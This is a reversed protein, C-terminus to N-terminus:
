LILIPLVKQLPDIMTTAGSARMAKVYFVGGVIMSLSPKLKLLYYGM